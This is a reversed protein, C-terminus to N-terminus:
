RRLLLVTIGLMPHGSFCNGLYSATVLIPHQALHTSSSAVLSALRDSVWLLKLITHHGLPAPLILSRHLPPKYAPSHAIPHLGTTALPFLWKSTVPFTVTLELEIGVPRSSLAECLLITSLFEFSLQRTPKWRIDSMSLCGRCNQFWACFLSVFLFVYKWLSSVLQWICVVFIFPLIQHPFVCIVYVCVYMAALQPPLNGGLLTGFAFILWYFFGTWHIMHYQLGSTQNAVPYPFILLMLLNSSRGLYFHVFAMVSAPPITNLITPLTQFVNKHM